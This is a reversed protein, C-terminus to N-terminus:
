PNSTKVINGLIELNKLEDLTMRFGGTLQEQWEAATAGLVYTKETLVSPARFRSTVLQSAKM